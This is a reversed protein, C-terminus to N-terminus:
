TEAEICSCHMTRTEEQFYVETDVLYRIGNHIVFDKNKISAVSPYRDIDFRLTMRGHTVVGHEHLQIKNPTNIFWGRFSVPSSEAARVYDRNEITGANVQIWQLDKEESIINFINGFDHVSM